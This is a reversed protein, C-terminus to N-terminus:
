NDNFDDEADEDNKDLKGTRVSPLLFSPDYTVGAWDPIPTQLPVTQGPNDIDWRLLMAHDEHQTNHCHEMYTGLFERFRIALTVKDSADVDNGVRYVDKRAYKEWIPPDEGDRRLIQGEEFHIHIPHSWGGGGNELHWIEVGNNSRVPAASIRHPDMGFGNGGNTKITWPQEDTGNSRGFKFSRHLAGALDQETFGPLPIMKKGGPEYDTPNMSPDPFNEDNTVRFEMFKGVGPDGKKGDPKYSGDLIENLPINDNPGKGNKHEMTNVFYIKGGKYNSFDIIIDYREAIGQGPLDQSESNPFPIAHEMINGDNAIMHFPIRNGSEDVIAIKFFRSVSGNLLRFRYRRPRVKMYPKYLWNVTIRDGMFGDLNFINFFLQGNEDWAKDAILLNVDYDRNGWPLVSGSPLCLNVNNPHSYHCSVGTPDEKGPDVASYYNMMAANGKYVNQATFDLMHDHFWHTSMIEHWDGPVKNGLPGASRPDSANTNISDHGAPIMPWRYDYFQGPFFFANTYGDSEAPNHGNHEHTTITHLGFGFNASEDIMLANYHRFLIPKGYQATLLKPPLTGDFTWLATPDQVPMNPHFRVQIGTTTGNFGTLGTTNHYLGGPGFEGASYGHRQLPNRLGGNTRAGAHASQFYEASPFEDARQHSFQVGGPRGEIPSTTIDISVCEQIKSLWPNSMQVNALVTPAPYLPAALFTDLVTGAPSSTCDAPIPLTVATSNTPLPQPGFEEFRLLQQEFPKAGFLPSLSAGTPIDFGANASSSVLVAIASLLANQLSMRSRRIIPINLKKM